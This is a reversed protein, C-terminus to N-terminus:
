ELFITRSNVHSLIDERIEENYVGAKLIVVPYAVSRLINPSSVRHRTGYLRKGQKNVDNDLICKVRSTNLGFGILFQSFVHAGFLYLEQSSELKESRLNLDKVLLKHHLVYDLYLQKNREYLGNPLRAPRVSPDRVYAYFISHDKLFYEKEILRFGHLQLLYEIYPETLFITHEFNICNTYKRQLMEEMNPVSFVLHKGPELFTSIDQVFAVPDYVHEFVHSHVVTDVTTELSFNGDFFGKIFKAKVGAAPSPNPEIIVWPVSPDLESYERSLIGHAGGIELVANPRFRHVFLSFLKHHVEWLKGVCGSGHAEPYIVELPLVPNLQIAGSSKSISWSMNSLLDSDQANVTCGMFVPFDDFRYLPELDEGGFIVDSDRQILKVM